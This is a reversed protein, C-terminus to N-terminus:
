HELSIQWTELTRGLQQDLATIANAYAIRASLAQADASRLTSQLSLVEFNSARGAQLRENHLELSRAALEKARLAAELQRWRSGVEAVADRVSREIRELNGEYRLRASHVQAKAAMVNRRGSFDGIPVNLQIGVSHSSLDGAISDTTFRDFGAVVSVDWLRGNRALREGMEVQELGLQQARIDRRNAMATRVAADPDIDLAEVEVADIARIPTNPDLALLTLLQARSATLARETELLSVEQNAVDSQTQVIDAAAMRGADILFQNVELLQRSRELAMRSLELREQTQILNRYAYTIQDILDVVATEEQLQALEAGIHAQRLPATNVDWGAGRLLPQRANLSFGTSAAGSGDLPEYRSWGMSVSTGVPSTWNVSPSISLEGTVPRGDTKRQVASVAVGGSPWYSRHALFLDFRDIVRMMRLSRLDRNDRLGLAVAEELTLDLTAGARASVDPPVPQAYVHPPCCLAVGAFLLALVSIRM